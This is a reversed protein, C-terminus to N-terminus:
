IYIMATAYNYYDKTDSYNLSLSERIFYDLAEAYNGDDVLTCFESYLTHEDKPPKMEPAKNDEPEEAASGAEEIEANKTNPITIGYQIVNPQPSFKGTVIIYGDMLYIAIEEDSSDEVKKFGYEELYAEYKLIAGLGNANNDALYNYLKSNSEPADKETNLEIGTVNTFTELQELDTGQYYEKSSKNNKCSCLTFVLILLTIMRTLRKMERGEEKYISKTYRSSDELAERTRRAGSGQNEGRQMIKFRSGTQVGM